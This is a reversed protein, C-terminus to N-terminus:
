KKLTITATKYYKASPFQDSAINLVLTNNGAVLNAYNVGITLTTQYKGSNITCANPVTVANACTTKTADVTVAVLVADQPANAILQVPVSVSTTSSTITFSYTALSFAIQPDGEYIKNEKECSVFVSLMLVLSFIKILKKM